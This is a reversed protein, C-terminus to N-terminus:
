QSTRSERASSSSPTAEETVVDYFKGDVLVQVKSQDHADGSLYEAVQEMDRAPFGHIWFVAKESM